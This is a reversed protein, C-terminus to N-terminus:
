VQTGRSTLDTGMGLPWIELSVKTWIGTRHTNSDGKKSPRNQGWLNRCTVGRSTATHTAGPSEDSCGGSFMSMVSQHPRKIIHLIYYVTSISLSVIGIYLKLLVNLWLWPLSEFWIDIHSMHIEEKCWTSTVCGLAAQEELNVHENFVGNFRDVTHQCSLVFCFRCWFTPPTYCHLWLLHNDLRNVRQLDHVRHYDGDPNSANGLQTLFWHAASKQRGM